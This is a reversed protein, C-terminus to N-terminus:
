RHNSFVLYNMNTLAAGSHSVSQSLLTAMGTVFVNATVNGVYNANNSYYFQLYYQQGPTTGFQQQITGLANGALDVSQNGSYAPYNFSASIDVNGATVTWGTIATSPANINAYNGVTPTEFGGNQILNPAASAAVASCVWIVAAAYNISANKRFM